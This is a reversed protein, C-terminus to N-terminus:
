KILKPKFSNNDDKNWSLRIYKAGSPAVLSMYPNDGTLLSTYVGGSVFSKDANYWAYGAQTTTYTRKVYFNYNKGSEILIYDTAIWDSNAVAAGAINSGNTIGQIWYKNKLTSYNILSVGENTNIDEESFDSDYYASSVFDDVNGEITSSTLSYAKLGLEEKPDYMHIDYEYKGNVSYVTVVGTYDNQGMLDSIKYIVRAGGNSMSDVMYSASAKELVNSAYVLLANKKTKSMMPLVTNATIVILLALIVIVALLEVLTFGNRKM